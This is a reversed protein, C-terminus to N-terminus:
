PHPQRLTHRPSSATDHPEIIDGVPDVRTMELGDHVHEDPLQPKHFQSAGFPGHPQPLGPGIDIELEATAVGPVPIVM